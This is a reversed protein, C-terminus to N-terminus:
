CANPSLTADLGDVTLKRGDFWLTNGRMWGDDGTMMLTPLAGLMIVKWRGTHRAAYQRADGLAFSQRDVGLGISTNVSITNEINGAFGYRGDRCLQWQAERTSDTGSQATGTSTYSFAYLQKGRLNADWQKLFENAQPAFFRVSPAIQELWRQVRQEDGAAMLSLSNSNPGLLTVSAAFLNAARYRQTLRNASRQPKGVPQLVLNASVPYPQALWGTLDDVNAGVQSVAFVTANEQASTTLAFTSANQVAGRWGQPIVLSAGMLSSRVRSGANYVQGALMEQEGQAIVISGFVILASWLM